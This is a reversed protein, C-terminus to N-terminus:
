AEVVKQLFRRGRETLVYSVTLGHKTRSTLGLEHLRSQLGARMTNVHADTWPRKKDQHSSYYVRMKKNLSERAIVGGAILGLLTVMHDAEDPVEQEIHGILFEQEDRSLSSRGRSDGDIIPNAKRSFNLGAETLGIRLAEGEAHVSVFKMRPLLGDHKRDSPRTYILFQDAYRRRSKDTSEPLSTSLLDGLKLGLEVDRSRLARGVREAVDCAAARFEPVTPLREESLHALMRLAPKLPFFRYYQGWLPGSLTDQPLMTELLIPQGAPLEILHQISEVGVLNGDPRPGDASSIQKRIMRKEAPSSKGADQFKGLWWNQNNGEAKLQNELALAVLHDFSEYTGDQIKRWVLQEISPPLDILRKAM